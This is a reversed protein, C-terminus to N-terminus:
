HWQVGYKGVPSLRHQLELGQKSYGNQHAVRLAELLYWCIVVYM